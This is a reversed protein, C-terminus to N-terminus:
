RRAVASTIAARACIVHEGYMPSLLLLQLAGLGKVTAEITAKGGPLLATRRSTLM